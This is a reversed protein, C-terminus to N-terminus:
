DRGNWDEDEDDGAGRSVRLDKTRIKFRNTPRESSGGGSSGDDNLVGYGGRRGESERGGRAAKLEEMATQRRATTSKWESEVDVAREAVAKQLAAYVARSLERQHESTVRSSDRTYLLRYLRVLWLRARADSGFAASSTALLAFWLTDCLQTSQPPQVHGAALLQCWVRLQRVQVYSNPEHLVALLHPMCRQQRGSGALLVVCRFAAIRVPPSHHSALFSFYDVIPESLRHYLQFCIAAELAAVTVVHRYSPLLQDHKLHRDILSMLPQRNETDALRLNGVAHLLAAIYYDDAYANGDNDNGDLMSVILRVVASPSLGSKVDYCRSLEIPLRQKLRYLGIDNFSNAKWENTRRSAWESRIWREIFARNSSESADRVSSLLLVRAAMLRVWVYVDSGSFVDRLAQESLKLGEMEVSEIRIEDMRGATERDVAAMEDRGIFLRWLACVAEIQGRVDRECTAQLCLMVENAVSECAQFVTLLGDCRVWLVPTDNHRTLLKDLSLSLLQEKDYQKRKRNRRVRSVCSFEFEHQESAIRREQETVRESEHIVFKVASSVRVATHHYRCQRQEVDVMTNKKKTNYRYYLSLLPYSTDHVWQTFFSPLDVDASLEKALSLFGDTTLPLVVSDAAPKNDTAEKEDDLTSEELEDEEDEEEGARRDTSPQRGIEGSKEVHLEMVRRMLQGYVSKGVRHQLMLMVITAKDRMTRNYLECPHTYGTWHLPRADSVRETRESTSSRPPPQSDPLSLLRTSPSLSAPDADAKLVATSLQLTLYEAENRGFQREVWSMMLVGAMGLLLWSDEPREIVVASLWCSAVLYALWRRNTYVPDILRGDTLAHLPLVIMGALVQAEEVAAYLVHLQSYPWSGGLLEGYLSLMSAITSPAVITYVFSSHHSSPYFYTVYEAEVEVDVMWRGVAWGMSRSHVPLPQTFCYRATTRSDNDYRKNVLQAAAIVQMDADVVVEVEYTSRESLSDFCPHWMSGDYEATNTLVAGSGGGGSGGGRDLWTLARCERDLTYVVTMVISEMDTEGSTANGTIDIDLAQQRKTREREKMTEKVRKPLKVCVNGAAYADAEDDYCYQLSRLDRVDRLSSDLSLFLSSNITSWSAPHTDVTIDVINYGRNCFTLYKLKDTLPLYVMQASCRIPPHSAAPIHPSHTSHTSHPTSLDLTLRTHLLKHQPKRPRNPLVSASAATSGHSASM